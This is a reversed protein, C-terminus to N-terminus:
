CPLNRHATLLRLHELSRELADDEGDQRRPGGVAVLDGRPQAVLAEGVDGLPGDVREEDADLLAPEDIHLLHGGLLARGALDVGDVGSPPLVQGLEPPRPAEECFSEFLEAVSPVSM